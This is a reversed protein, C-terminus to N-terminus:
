LFEMPTNPMESTFVELNKWHESWQRAYKVEDRVYKNYMISVTVQQKHLYSLETIFCYKMFIDRQQTLSLGTTQDWTVTDPELYEEESDHAMAVLVQAKKNRALQRSLTDNPISTARDRRELLDKFSELLDKQRKLSELISDGTAIAQKGMMIGLQQMSKAISDYGRVVQQCGECNPIWCNKEVNGMSHLTVSYRIYDTGMAKKLRNMQNMIMCMHDYQQISVSIRKKIRSMRDDLDLPIMRELKSINNPKRVFEEDTIPANGRRWSNMESPHNLFAHVVEDRGLIPHRAVANIFRSLGKRRIEEFTETRGGLKKQPLSPVIRFPYRKLLLDCLWWFDSYRRLVKSGLKESELEYNIHKFLFGEKQAARSVTIHDLDMFWQNLAKQEEQHQTSIYDTNVPQRKTQESISEIDTFSPIPLDQRHADINELSVDMNKQACAVLALYTYFENRTIYDSEPSCVLNLIKQQIPATLSSHQFLIDLAKLQIKEHYPNSISYIDNYADPIDAGVTVNSATLESTFHATIEPVFSEEQQREQREEAITWPDDAAYLPNDTQSAPFFHFHNTFDPSLIDDQTHEM